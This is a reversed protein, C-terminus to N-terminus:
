FLVIQYILFLSAAFNILLLIPTLPFIVIIYFYMTIILQLLGYIKTMLSSHRLYPMHVCKPLTLTLPEVM